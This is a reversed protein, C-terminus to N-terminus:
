LEKAMLVWAERWGHAPLVKRWGERGTAVAASCGHQRAFAEIEPQLGLCADLDGFVLFFNVVRKRPYTVIETVIGGGEAMWYQFRGALIGDAVDGVTYCDGARRLAKLLPTRLGFLHDLRPDTFQHVTAGNLATM